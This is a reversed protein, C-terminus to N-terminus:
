YGVSGVAVQGGCDGGGGDITDFDLILAVASVAALPMRCLHFLPQLASTMHLLHNEVLVVTSELLAFTALQPEQQVPLPSSHCHSPPPRIEADIMVVFGASSFVFM